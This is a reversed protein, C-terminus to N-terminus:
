TIYKDVRPGCGGITRTLARTELGRPQRKSSGNGTLPGLYNISSKERPRESLFGEAGPSPPAAIRVGELPSLEEDPDAEDESEGVRM